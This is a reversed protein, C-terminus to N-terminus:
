SSVGERYVDLTFSYTLLYIDDNRLVKLRVLTGM